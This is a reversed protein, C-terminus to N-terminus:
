PTAGRHALVARLPTTMAVADLLTIPTDEATTGVLLQAVLACRMACVVREGASYPILRDLDDTVDAVISSLGLETLWTEGIRLLRRDPLTLRDSLIGQETETLSGALRLLGIVAEWQLGYAVVADHRDLYRAM